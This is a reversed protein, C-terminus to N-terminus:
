EIREYRGLTARDASIAGVRPPKGAPSPAAATPAATAAPAAPLAAPTAPAPTAPAEPAACAALLALVLALLRRLRPSAAPANIMPLRKLHQRHVSSRPRFVLSSRLMPREDKTKRRM